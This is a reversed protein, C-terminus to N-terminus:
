RMPVSTGASSSAAILRAIYNSYNNSLGLKMHVNEGVACKRPPLDAEKLEGHEREADSDARIPRFDKRLVESGQENDCNYASHVDRVHIEFLVLESTHLRRSSFARSM